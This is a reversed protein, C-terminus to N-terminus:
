FRESASMVPTTSPSVAISVGADRTIALSTAPRRGTRQHRIATRASRQHL